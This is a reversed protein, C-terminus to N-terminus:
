LYIFINKSEILNNQEELKANLSKKLDIVEQSSSFTFQNSLLDLAESYQQMESYAQSAILCAKSNFIFIYNELEM